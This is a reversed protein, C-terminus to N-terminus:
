PSWSGRATAPNRAQRSLLPLRADRKLVEHEMRAERVVSVSREYSIKHGNCTFMVLQPPKAAAKLSLGFSAVYDELSFNIKERAFYIKNRESFPNKEGLKNGSNRFLARRLSPFYSM